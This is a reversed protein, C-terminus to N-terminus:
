LETIEAFGAGDAVWIGDIRGTYAPRGMEFTGGPPIIYTFGDAALTATTGYKIYLANADTNVLILGQRNANAALLQITTAQSDVHTPTAASVSADVVRSAATQSGAGFVGTALALAANLTVLEDLTGCLKGYIDNPYTTM